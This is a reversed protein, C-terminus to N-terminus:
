RQVALKTTTEQGGGQALVFYVGSAVPRGSRNTVDWVATGTSDATMDAVLQGTLTYVRVRAEAPM